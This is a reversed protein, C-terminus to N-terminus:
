DQPFIDHGRQFLLKKEREAEDPGCEWIQDGHFNDYIYIANFAAIAVGTWSM